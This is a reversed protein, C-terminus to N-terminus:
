AAFSDRLQNVLKFAAEPDAKLVGITNFLLDLGQEKIIPSLSDQKM